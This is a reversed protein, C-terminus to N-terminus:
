ETLFEHPYKNSRRQFSLIKPNQIKGNKIEIARRITENKECEGMGGMVIPLYPIISNSIEWSAANWLYSPTHDVAYYFLQNIKLIPEKFTTPKVTDVLPHGVWKVPMRYKAYFTELLYKILFSKGTGAAGQIVFSGVKQLVNGQEYGDKV